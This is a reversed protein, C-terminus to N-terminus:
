AILKKALEVAEELEHLLILHEEAYPLYHNETELLKRERKEPPCGDLTLVNHLRDPLKLLFFRRPASRFRSHYVHDRESKDPFEAKSPKTMYDVLYAVENGFERRVREISWYKIDEVVDHCLGAIILHHDRIRLYEIAILAVARLHEFYRQGDERFEGHFADKMLRYAKDIELYRYDSEPYILAIRKFFSEKNEAAQLFPMRKLFSAQLM